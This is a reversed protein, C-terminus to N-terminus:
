KHIGEILSQVESELYDKPDKSATLLCTASAGFTRFKTTAALSEKRKDPDLWVITQPYKQKSIWCILEEPVHCGLMAIANYGSRSINLASLIDEVLVLPKDPYDDFTKFWVDARKSRVNVYKPRKASVEGLNRGQWFVIEGDKIVPLILRDRFESYGFRYRRCEEDTVRYKRLWRSGNSPIELTFDMPLRVGDVRLEQRERNRLRQKVREPTVKGYRIVKGRGCNHCYLKWGQYTRTVVFGTTKGNHFPCFDYRIPVNMPAAPDLYESYM